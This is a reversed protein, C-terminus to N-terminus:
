KILFKVSVESEVKLKEFEIAPASYGKKERMSTAGRVTMGSAKANLVHVFGSDIDSVYIAKGVTQSLPQLMASAQVKAKAVALSKMELRLKELKSYEMRALDVNSIGALELDAIVEGATKADYVLLEYSKLKLIDKKRLFYKKFNSSLDSLKVQKMLDVGRNELAKMMALELDELTLKGRADRESIIISLYIRDPTVQTDVKATTELYPQDIFNKSQGFSPCALLLCLFVFNVKKM